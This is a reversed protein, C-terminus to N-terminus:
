NSLFRLEGHEQYWGWGDPTPLGKGAEYSLFEERRQESTRLDRGLFTPFLAPIKNMEAELETLKKERKQQALPSDYAACLVPDFFWVDSIEAQENWYQFLFYCKVLSGMFTNLDPRHDEHYCVTMARSMSPLRFVVSKVVLDQATIPQSTPVEHTAVIYFAHTTVGMRDVWNLAARFQGGSLPANGFKWEGRVVIDSTIEAEWDIDAGRVAFTSFDCIQRLRDPHRIIDVTM